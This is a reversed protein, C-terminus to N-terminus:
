VKRLRYGAFGSVAGVLLALFATVGFILVPNMASSIGNPSGTLIGAMKETMDVSSNFHSYLAMGLWLTLLAAASQLIAQKANKARWRCVIWAVIATIWWPGLFSLIAGFLLIILYIM